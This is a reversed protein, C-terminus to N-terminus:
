TSFGNPSSRWLFSSASTEESCCCSFRFRPRCWSRLRHRTFGRIYRRLDTFFYGDRAVAFPVRAGSMITGNLTVLMSFAMGASVISAGLTGLCWGRHCRFRTAAFNRDADSSSTSCPQMSWCTCSRGRCRRRRDACDSHQTGSRRVEGAVMNLDNWGDYAWLAAVLAAM